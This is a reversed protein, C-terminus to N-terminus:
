PIAVAPAKVNALSKSEKEQVFKSRRFRVVEQNYNKFRLNM